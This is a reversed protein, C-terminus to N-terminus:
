EALGAEIAADRLLDLMERREVEELRRRMRKSAARRAPPLDKEREALALLIELRRECAALKEHHSM